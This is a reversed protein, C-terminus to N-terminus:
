TVANGCSIRRPSTEWKRLCCSISFTAVVILKNAEGFGLQGRQPMLQQLRWSTFLTLPVVMALSLAMWPGDCNAFVPLLKAVDIKWYIIVLIGLSVFISILRKM